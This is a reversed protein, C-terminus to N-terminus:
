QSQTALSGELLLGDIQVYSKWLLSLADLYALNTQSFTQQAALVDLYGVEGQQYGQQVLEFTRLARPLINIAYSDATVYADAYQQFADALRQQLNLEVRDVNRIAESVEAQAQRIGGQNRNWLPLPLGIQVGAITDNTSDDYQVSLQTSIDPVAEVCARNLAHRARAVKAMAIAIEPSETQLRSLQQEWEFSEPIKSVDGVLPQM